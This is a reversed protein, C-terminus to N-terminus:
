ADGQPNKMRKALERGEFAAIEELGMQTEKLWDTPPPGSEGTFDGWTYGQTKVILCREVLEYAEPPVLHLSGKELLLRIM